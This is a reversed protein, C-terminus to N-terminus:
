GRFGQDDYEKGDVAEYEAAYEHLRAMQSSEEAKGVASLPSGMGQWAVLKVATPHVRM